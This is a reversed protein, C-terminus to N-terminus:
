HDALAGAAKVQYMHFTVTFIIHSLFEARGSKICDDNFFGRLIISNYEYNELIHILKRVEFRLEM